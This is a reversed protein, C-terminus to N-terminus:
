KKTGKKKKKPGAKVGTKAVVVKKPIVLPPRAAPKPTTSNPPAMIDHVAKGVRYAMSGGPILPAIAPALKLSWQQIKKLGAMIRAKHTMNEFFYGFSALHLQAQHLSELTLGSMGVQFLTSTTRFEIHWDVNFALTNVAGNPSAFFAINVLSDNDLRYLPAATAGNSTNLTYDWFSAMDTSPPCYTYFGTELTLYAKEAPHLNSVYVSDVSWPNLVGPPVRGAAVTGGKALAPTVNTALVSVATTRASFWPLASNTFEVPVAMPLVAKVSGPTITYTGRTTTSTAYSGIGSSVVFTIRPAAYALVTNGSSLQLNVPRVWCPRPLFGGILTGVGTFTSAVAIQFTQNLIYSEGPSAWVEMQVNFFTASNSSFAASDSIILAVTFNDPVYFWPLPGLGADVALLPFGGTQPMPLAGSVGVVTPSATQNGVTWTKVAPNIGCPVDSNIVVTSATILGPSFAYSVAYAEGGTTSQTVWAPWAAQRALMLKTTATYADVTPSAAVAENFLSNFAMVATRELGPFNPFRQPAVEHPLSMQKALGVEAQLPNQRQFQLVSQQM